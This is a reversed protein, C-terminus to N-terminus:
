IEYSFGLFFADDFTVSKGAKKTSFLWLISICGFKLGFVQTEHFRCFLWAYLWLFARVQVCEQM